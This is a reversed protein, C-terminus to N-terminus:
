WPVSPVFVRLDESLRQGLLRPERHELRAELGRIRQNKELLGLVEIRLLFLRERVAAIFRVSRLFLHSTSICDHCLDILLLLRSAISLLEHRGGFNMSRNSQKKLLLSLDQVKYVVGSGHGLAFGPDIRIHKEDLINQDWWVFVTGSGCLSGTLNHFRLLVRSEGLDHLIAVNDILNALLPLIRTGVRDGPHPIVTVQKM